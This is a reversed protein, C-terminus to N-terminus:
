YLEIRLCDAIIDEAIARQKEDFLIDTLAYIDNMADAIDAFDDQTAEEADPIDYDRVMDCFLAAVHDTTIHRM